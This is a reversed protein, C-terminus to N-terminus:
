DLSASVKVKLSGYIFLSSLKAQHYFLKFLFFTHPKINPSKPGMETNTRQMDTQLAEDHGESTDLFLMPWFHLNLYLRIPNYKQRQSSCTHSM